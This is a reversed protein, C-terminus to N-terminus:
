GWLNWRDPESGPVAVHSEWHTESVGESDPALLRLDTDERVDFDYLYPQISVAYCVFATALVRDDKAGPAAEYRIMKGGPPIRQTFAVMEDLTQQHPIQLRDEAWMAQMAAIMLPKTSVNTDVGFRQSFNLEKQTPKSKDVFIKPYWLQHRLKELVAAGLGGTTEVVLWAGNYWVGLKKVEEAFLGPRIYGHWEAVKRLCLKGGKNEMRHVSACSFDPTRRLGGPDLGAATDVGIIYQGNTTPKEYIALNGVGLEQWELGSLDVLEAPDELTCVLQGLAWKGSLADETKAIREPDFVPQEALATPVGLVRAKYEHRPMSHADAEISERDRLGADLQSINFFEAYPPTDEKSPYRRNLEKPGKARAEVVRHEWVDPGYLPSGTILGSSHSVTSLRQTGEDFFEEDVHEDLHLQGFQAGMIARAGGEDSYLSVTGRGKHLASCKDARGDAACEPCATTIRYSKRDFRHLWKGGEPFYPSLLNGTEGSIMKPEFVDKSYKQYTTGIIAVAQNRFPIHRHPHQNTVVWYDDQYGSQTKSCRNGACFFRWLAGSKHFDLAVSHAPEYFAGPDAARLREYEGRLWVLCELYDRLWPAFLDHHYGELGQTAAWALLDAWELMEKNSKPTYWTYGAAALLERSRSMFDPVSMRHVFRESARTGIGFM